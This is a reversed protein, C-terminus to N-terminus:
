AYNITLSAVKVNVTLSWTACTVRSAWTYWIFVRVLADIVSWPYQVPIHASGCSCMRVVVNYTFHLKREIIEAKCRCLSGNENNEGGREMTERYNTCRKNFRFAGGYTFSDIGDTRTSIEREPPRLPALGLRVEFLVVTM